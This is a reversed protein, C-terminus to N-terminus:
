SSFPWLYSCQRWETILVVFWWHISILQIGVSSREKEEFVLFDMFNIRLRRQRGYNYSLLWHLTVPQEECVLVDRVVAEIRNSEIRDSSSKNCIKNRNRGMMRILERRINNKGSRRDCPCNNTSRSHNIKIPQSIHYTANARYGCWRM